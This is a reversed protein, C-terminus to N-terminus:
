FSDRGARVVADKPPIYFSLGVLIGAQNGQSGRPADAVIMQSQLSHLADEARAAIREVGAQALYAADTVEMGCWNCRASIHSLLRRYCHPCDDMESCAVRWYPRGRPLFGGCARSPRPCGTWFM